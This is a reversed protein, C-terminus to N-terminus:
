GFGLPRRRMGRRRLHECVLRWSVSRRNRSKCPLALAWRSGKSRSRDKRAGKLVSSRPLAFVALTCTVLLLFASPQPPPRVSDLRHALRGLSQFPLYAQQQSVRYELRLQLADKGRAARWPLDRASLSSSGQAGCAVQMRFGVGFSSARVRSCLNHLRCSSGDEDRSSSANDRKGSCKVGRVKRTRSTGSTMPRVFTSAQVSCGIEMDASDGMPM